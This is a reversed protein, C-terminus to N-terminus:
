NGVKRRGTPEVGTLVAGPKKNVLCVHLEGGVDENQRSDAERTQEKAGDIQQENRLKCLILAAHFGISQFALIDM